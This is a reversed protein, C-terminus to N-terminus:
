VHISACVDCVCVPETEEQAVTVFSSHSKGTNVSSCSKLSLYGPDDFDRGGHEAGKKM